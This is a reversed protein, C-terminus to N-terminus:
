SRNSTTNVINLLPTAWDSGDFRIDAPTEKRFDLMNSLVGGSVSM